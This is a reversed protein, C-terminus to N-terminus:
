VGTTINLFEANKPESLCLISNNGSIFTLIGVVTPVKVKILLFIEYQTSNLMFVNLLGPAQNFM